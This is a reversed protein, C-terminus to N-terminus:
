ILTANHGHCSSMWTISKVFVMALECFLSGCHEAKVINWQVPSDSIFQEEIVNKSASWDVGAAVTAGGGV